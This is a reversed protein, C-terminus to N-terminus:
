RFNRRLWDISKMFATGGAVLATSLPALPGDTEGLAHDVMSWSSIATCAAMVTAAALTLATRAHLPDNPGTSNDLSM